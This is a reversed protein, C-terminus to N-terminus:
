QTVEGPSPARHTFTRAKTAAVMLERLDASTGMSSQLVKLSPAETALDRRRLTYRLWQSAMCDRAEPSAALQKMLQVAGDFKIEGAALAFAGKANIPKGVETDRWAGIPDYHEFAFGVPDILKHCTACPSASHVEYRERTTQGPMPEPLPPVM